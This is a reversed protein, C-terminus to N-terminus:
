VIYRNLQLYVEMCQYLLWEWQMKIRWCNNPKKETVFWYAKVCYCDNWKRRGLIIM